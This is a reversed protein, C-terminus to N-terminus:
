KRIQLYLNHVHLNFQINFIGTICICIFAYKNYQVEYRIYECLSTLSIVSSSFVVMRVSVISFCGDRINSMTSLLVWGCGDPPYWGGGSPGAGDHHVQPLHRSIGVWSSLFHQPWCCGAQIENSGTLQISIIKSLIRLNKCNKEQSQQM